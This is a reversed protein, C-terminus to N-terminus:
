WSERNLEGTIVESYVIGLELKRSNVNTYPLQLTFCTFQM